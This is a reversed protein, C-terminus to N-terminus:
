EGTKQGFCGLYDGNRSRYWEM